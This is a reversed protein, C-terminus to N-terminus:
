PEDQKQVTTREANGGPTVDDSGHEVAGSDAESASEPGKRDTKEKPKAKVRVEQVNGGYETSIDGEYLGYGQRELARLRQIYPGFESHLGDEESAKQALASVQKQLTDVRDMVSQHVTNQLREEVEDETVASGRLTDVSNELGRLTDVIGALASALAEGSDVEPDDLGLDARIADPDAQTPEESQERPTWVDEGECHSHHGGLVKGPNSGEPVNLVRGCDECTVTGDTPAPQEATEDPDSQPTEPTPVADEDQEPLDGNEQLAQRGKAALWYEMPKYRVDRKRRDVYHDGFLRAAPGTVSEWAETDGEHAEPRYEEDMQEYIERCTAPGDHRAIAKLVHYKKTNTRM